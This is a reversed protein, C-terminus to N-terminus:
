IWDRESGLYQEVLCLAQHCYQYSSHLCCCLKRLLVLSLKVTSPLLVCGAFLSWISLIHTSIRIYFSVVYFVSKQSRMFFLSRISFSFHFWRFLCHYSFGILIKYVSDAYKFFLHELACPVAKTWMSCEECNWNLWRTVTQQIELPLRWIHSHVSTRILCSCLCLCKLCGFLHLAFTDRSRARIHLNAFSTTSVCKQSENPKQWTWWTWVSLFVASSFFFLCCLYGLYSLESEHNQAYMSVIVHMWLVSVCVCWEFMCLSPIAVLSQERWKLRLM